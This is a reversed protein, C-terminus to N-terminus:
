DRRISAAPLRDAHIEDATYDCQELPRNTRLLAFHYHLANQLDDANIFYSYYM